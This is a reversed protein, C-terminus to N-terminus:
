SDSSPLLGGVANTLVRLYQAVLEYHETQAQKVKACVAASVRNMRRAGHGANYRLITGCTDGGSLRYAMALYKIGFKINTEPDFLGSASGSYGVMRATGVKIQMLGIEGARGRSRPKYNSEVRMVANALAAPVGYESAYRAVIVSYSFMDPPVDPVQPAIAATPYGDIDPREVAVLSTGAGTKADARERGIDRRTDSATVPGTAGSTPHGSEGRRQGSLALLGAAIAIAAVTLTAVRNTIIVSARTSARSAGAVWYRGEGNPGMQPLL